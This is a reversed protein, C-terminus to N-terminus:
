GCRDGSASPLCRLGVACPQISYPSAVQQCCPQGAQGCTVCSPAAAATARMCATGSASCYPVGLAQCCPQGAGGCGPGCSGSAACRSDVDFCVAGVGVCFPGLNETQLHVCCSGDLCRNGPCCPLIAAGQSRGCRKCLATDPDRGVCATEPDVCTLDPCCRDDAHGCPPGDAASDLRPVPADSPPADAPLTGSPADPHVDPPPGVDAGPLDGTVSADVVVAPPGDPPVALETSGCGVLLVLIWPRRSMGAIDPRAVRIAVDAWDPTV